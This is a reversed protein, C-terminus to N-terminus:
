VGPDAELAALGRLDVCNMDRIRAIVMLLGLCNRCRVVTGPARLYVVFEAVQATAGCAACTGVATTMETGFVEQLLGGIANGDLPEM